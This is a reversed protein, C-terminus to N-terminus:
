GYNKKTIGIPQDCLENVAQSNGFFASSLNLIQANLGQDGYGAAKAKLCACLLVDVAANNQQEYPQATCTKGTTCLDSTVTVPESQFNASCDSITITQGSSRNGTYLFIAFIIVIFLLIYRIKMM